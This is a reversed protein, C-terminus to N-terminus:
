DTVGKIMMDKTTVLSQTTSMVEDDPPGGEEFAASMKHAAFSELMSVDPCTEVLAQMLLLFFHSSM